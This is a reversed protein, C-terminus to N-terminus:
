EKDIQLDLNTLSNIESILNEIDTCIVKVLDQAGDLNGTRGLAELNRAREILSDCFFYSLQSKLQHANERLMDADKNELALNLNVISGSVFRAFIVALDPFLEPDGETFRELQVRDILQSNM